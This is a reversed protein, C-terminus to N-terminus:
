HRTGNRQRLTGNAEREAEERNGKLEEPHDLDYERHDEVSEVQGTMIKYLTLLIFYFWYIHLLQLLVLMSNLVLYMKPDKNVHYLYAGWNTSHIVKLPYWYLRCWAWSLTFFIFALTALHDSWKHYGHGRSKMYVNIKTLELFVDSVDHLFLVLSGMKHYRMCYSLYLLAITIGHHFLMMISDKRWADMHLTGYISHLYFAMQLFYMTQIDTPLPTDFIDPFTVNWIRCPNRFYDHRGSLIIVHCSYSWLAGYLLLKWCSESFKVMDQKRLQIWCGLPDYVFKTLLYRSFTLFLAMSLMLGIERATISTFRVYLIDYDVPYKEWNLGFEKFATYTGTLFEYYSPIEENPLVSAHTESM